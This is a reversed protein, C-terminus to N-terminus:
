LLRLTMRKGPLKCLSSPSVIHYCREPGLTRVTRRLTCSTDRLESRCMESFSWSLAWGSAHRARDGHRRHQRSTIGVDWPLPVMDTRTRFLHSGTQVDVYETPCPTKLLCENEYRNQRKERCSPAGRHKVHHPCRKWRSTVCSKEPQPDRRPPTESVARNSEIIL